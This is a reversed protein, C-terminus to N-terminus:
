RNARLITQLLELTKLSGALAEGWNRAYENFAGVNFMAIEYRIFSTIV